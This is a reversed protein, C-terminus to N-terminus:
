WADAVWWAMIELTGLGGGGDGELWVRHLLCIFDLPQPSSSFIVFTVTQIDHSSHSHARTKISLLDLERPRCLVRALVVLGKSSSCVSFHNGRTVQSTSCSFLSLDDISAKNANCIHYSGGQAQIGGKICLLSM